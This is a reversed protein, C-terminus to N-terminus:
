AGVGVVSRGVRRNYREMGTVMSSVSVQGGGGQQALLENQKQLLANQQRLLANQEQNAAYVGSSIGKVIQDNNAVATRSGITGVMEPGAERAIFMQGTSVFGGEAKAMPLPGAMNALALSYSTQLQKTATSTITAKTVEIKGDIKVTPVKIKPKFGNAFSNAAATGAAGYKKKAEDNILMQKITKPVNGYNYGKMGKTIQNGATKGAGELNSKAGDSDMGDKIGKTVQKGAADQGDKDGILNLKFMGWFKKGLPSGAALMDIGANWLKIAMNAIATIIASGVSEATIDVKLAECFGKLMPDLINTKAWGKDTVSAIASGIKTAIGAVTEATVTVLKIGEGIAAGIASSLAQSIQDTKINKFASGIATVIGALTDGTVTILKAWGNNQNMTTFFSNVASSIQTGLANFDFKLTFSSWGNIAAVLLNAVAQGLSSFATNGKKDKASLFGNITEAIKTGINSSTQLASSWNIGQIASTIGTAINSGLSKADITPVFTKLYALATNIANAVTDGISEFAGKGNKDKKKLFGNLANAIGTGWNEAASLATEWDISNLFRTIGLSLGEGFSTFNFKEGVKDIAHIATNLAGAATEGVATFVNKEIGTKPDVKTEFLGNLFNAFNVGFKDAKAYASDWDIQDMALIIKDSILSGVSEWDEKDIADKIDQVFDAISSDVPVEEFMAGYDAGGGGSGGGSSNDTLANIEDIGLISAKFKKTAATADNAAGTYEVAQKTAKMWTSAGTFKAFVQNFLNILAVLKDAVFDIAPALANLLPAAMAGLSNKVYQSSTAISNMSKALQGGTIKSFEYANDLGEKFGQTLEKIASRIARYFAIRGISKVLGKIKGAVGGVAKGLITFPAMVSRGSIKGVELSVKAFASALKKAYPVVAQVGKAIFGFAGKAATGFNGIAGFASKFASALNGIGFSSKSAKDGIDKIEVDVIRGTTQFVGMRDVTDKFADSFETLGRTNTNEPLLPRGSMRDIMGSLINITSVANDLQTTDVNLQIEAANQLGSFADKAASFDPTNGKDAKGSGGRQFKINGLGGSANIKEVSAAVAELNAIDGANITKLASGINKIQNAISASIKVGNLKTIADAIQTLNESAQRTGAAADTIKKLTNTISNLGRSQGSAVTKLSKLKDILNDIGKIGDASDAKIKIELTEMPENPM